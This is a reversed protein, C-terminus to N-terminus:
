KMGAIAKKVEELHLYLEHDYLPKLNWSKELIELAEEYKSKKYLGWGKTDLYGYNDPDSELAKDILELGENVKRDNYILFWALNNLRVPKEPELLLAQRYYEESKDLIGAESYVSALRTAISAESSSNDKLVSIYKEIYRHAEDTKGETLSLIAQRYTLDPNDPFDREAKKYLRKEKKYQGTKHYALGLGTYPWVAEPKSGWKKYIELAKEGEPIAKDYQHLRNYNVCLGFYNIPWQDDLELLQRDYKMAEYITEFFIAYLYNTFIKQRMTMQNRKEHLKLCWKKAQDYLGQNRYAFPLM